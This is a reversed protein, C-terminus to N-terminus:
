AVVEVLGLNLFGPLQGYAIPIQNTSRQSPSINQLPIHLLIQRPNLIIDQPARMIQTIPNTPFPM